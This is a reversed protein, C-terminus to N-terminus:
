IPWLFVCCFIVTFLIISFSSSSSEKENCTFSCKFYSLDNCLSFFFFSLFVSLFFSLFFVFVFLCPSFSLFFHFLSICLLTDREHSLTIAQLFQVADFLPPLFVHFFQYRFHFNLSCCCLTDTVNRLVSIHMRICVCIPYSPLTNIPTLYFKHRYIPPFTQKLTNRNYFLLLLLLILFIKNSYRIIRNWIPRITM